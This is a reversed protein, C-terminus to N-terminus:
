DGLYSRSVADDDRLEDPTGVRVVRGADLVVVHKATALALGVSQEVAVITTGRENLLRLTDFIARAAVPSLGFSPEDVLLLRPKAMMARGIALMQQEGGSLSAARERRREYLFPFLEFVHVLDRASTGRQTWAGLRLNDLVSLASFTGRGEPLHAVGRRAMGEPTRRYLREGEFMVEGSARVTGSIARLTTTKGAGNAGLIAVFDGDDVTLSVGHLAQIDGYRAELGRLELLPM